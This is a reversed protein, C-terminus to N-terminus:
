RGLKDESSAHQHAHYELTEYKQGALKINVHLLHMAVWLSVKECERRANERDLFYPGHTLIDCLCVWFHSISGKELIKGLSLLGDYVIWKKFFM